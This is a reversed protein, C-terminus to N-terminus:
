AVKSGEGELPPTPPPPSTRVPSAAQREAVDARRISGGGRAGGRSPRNRLPTRPSPPPAQAHLSAPRINQPDTPATTKPHQGAKLRLEPTTLGPRPPDM